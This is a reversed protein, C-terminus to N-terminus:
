CPPGGPNQIEELACEVFFVLFAVAGAPDSLIFPILDFSFPADPIGDLPVCTNPTAPGLLDDLTRVLCDTLDRILRDGTKNLEALAADVDTVEPVEPAPPAQANAVTPVAGMLLATVVSVVLLKSRGSM